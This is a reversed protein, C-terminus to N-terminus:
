KVCVVITVNPQKSFTHRLKLSTKSVGLLLLHRDYHGRLRYPM